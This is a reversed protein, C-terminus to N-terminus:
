CLGGCTSGSAVMGGVARACATAPYHLPPYFPTKSLGSQEFAEYAPDSKEANLDATLLVANCPLTRVCVLADWFGSFPECM